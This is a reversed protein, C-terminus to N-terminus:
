GAVFEDHGAGALQPFLSSDERKDNQAQRVPLGKEGNDHQAQRLMGRWDLQRIEQSQDDGSVAM